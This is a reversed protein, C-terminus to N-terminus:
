RADGAGYHALFLDELDLEHATLSQVEHRALAKVLADAGGEVQCHLTSGEVTAGRVGPLSSFEVLDIPHAFRVDIQHLAKARLEKVDEVAVLRGDRIIGARDATDQVESLIHSSLFVAAGRDTAERVLAEFVQQMLPDLGSTPEDLLLVEPEHVFAQLLGIKQRNGRSLERVPRDLDLHLREALADARHDDPAAGRLRSFYGAIQRGTRREYLSLDGPLYGTRRRVAVGDTRPDLGLVCMRGATPRILDLLLRITTTKGAGNPGLFGFVEGAQVRLDLDEVGRHEGYHKTLGDVQIAASM